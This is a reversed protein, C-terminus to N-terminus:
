MLIYRVDFNQILEFNVKACDKQGDTTIVYLYGKSRELSVGLDGDMNKYMLTAVYYLLIIFLINYLLTINMFLQKTYSRQSM